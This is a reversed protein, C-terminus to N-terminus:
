GRMRRSDRLLEALDDDSLQTFDDYFDSVFRFEDPILPVIVDDATSVTVMGRRSAIPASMVVRTAGALRVSQIAAAATAGSAIGDDVLIVERGRVDLARSPAERELEASVVSLYSDSIELEEILRDDFFRAGPAVAGLTQEPHGPVFIRRPWIARVPMALSSALACAVPVGGRALGVALASRSVRPGIARALVRGAESRNPYSRWGKM